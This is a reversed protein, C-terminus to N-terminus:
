THWSKRLLILQTGLTDLKEKTKTKELIMTFVGQYVCFIM